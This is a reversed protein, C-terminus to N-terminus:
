KSVVNVLASDALTSAGVTAVSDGAAIEGALATTQGDTLGSRVTRRFARGGHIVFVWEAAGDSQVAASPVTLTGGRSTVPVDVRCYMGPRFWRDPTNAFLAKVEFSRSKVDASRSLLIIEGRVKADPRTDSYVLVKQGIHFSTADIEDISFVVRMRDIRAVTALEEGPTALDGVTVNVATVTGAIPTTLEV